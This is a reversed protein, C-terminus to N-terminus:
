SNHGPHTDIRLQLGPFARAAWQALSQKTGDFYYSAGLPFKGEIVIEIPEKIM